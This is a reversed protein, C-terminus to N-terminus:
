PPEGFVVHVVVPLTSMPDVVVPTHRNVPTAELQFGVTLGASQYPSPVNNGIADGPNTNNLLRQSLFTTGTAEFLPAGSTTDTAARLVRWTGDNLDGADPGGDFLVVVGGRFLFSTLAASWSAGLTSLESNSAGQQPDIVFVDATALQATVTEPLASSLTYQRGVSAAAAAIAATVGVRSGVSTAADYVLVRVTPRPPLLVANGVLQRIAPRLVGTMDHGIAVVHGTVQGKCVSDICQATAACAFGCSGCNADDSTFDVCVGNCLVVPPTCILNCDGQDCFEDAACMEGCTGCNNRDSSLDVCTDICKTVGIGCVCDAPSGAGTCLVPPQVTADPDGADDTSGDGVTGDLDTVNGDPLLTEGDPGVIRGDPEVTADITADGPTADLGADVAADAGADPAPGAVCMSLACHQDASCAINCGGCHLADNALDYCANGCRELGDQCELGVLPSGCGLLVVPLALLASWLYTRLANV